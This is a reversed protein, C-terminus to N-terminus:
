VERNFIFDFIAARGNKQLEACFGPTGVSARCGITLSQSGRSLPVSWHCISKGVHAIRTCSPLARSQSGCMGRRGRTGECFRLFLGHRSILRTAPKRSHRCGMPQTVVVFLHDRFGRSHGKLTQCTFQVDILCTLLVM